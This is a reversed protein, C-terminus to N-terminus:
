RIGANKEAQESFVDFLSKFPDTASKGAGTTPTTPEWSSTAKRRSPLLTNLALTDISQSDAFSRAPRPWAVLPM